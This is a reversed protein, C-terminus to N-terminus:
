WEGDSSGVSASLRPSVVRGTEMVSLRPESKGSLTVERERQPPIQVHCLEPAGLGLGLFGLDALAMLNALGNCKIMM